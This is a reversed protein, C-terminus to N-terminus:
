SCSGSGCKGKATEDNLSWLWRVIARRWKPLKDPRYKSDKAGPDSDKDTSDADLQRILPRTVQELRGGRASTTVFVSTGARRSKDTKVWWYTTDGPVLGYKKYGEKETSPVTIKAIIRGEMLQEDSYRQAGILPQIKALPGYRCTLRSGTTDGPCAQTPSPQGPATDIVALPQEDVAEYSYDFAAGNLCSKLEAQTEPARGRPCGSEPDPPKPGNPCCATFVVGALLAIGTSVPIRWRGLQMRM